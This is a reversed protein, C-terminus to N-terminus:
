RRPQISDLVSNPANDVPQLGLVAPHDAVYAFAAELTSFLWRSNETPWPSEFKQTDICWVDLAGHLSRDAIYWGGHDSKHDSKRILPGHVDDTLQFSTAMRLLDAYKHVSFTSIRHRLATLFRGCIEAELDSSAFSLGSSNNIVGLIHRNQAALSTRHDRLLEILRTNMKLQEQYGTIREAVEKGADTVALAARIKDCFEPSALRSEAIPLGAESANLALFELLLARLAGAEAELKQSAQM